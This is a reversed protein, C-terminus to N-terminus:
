EGEKNTNVFGNAEKDWKAGIVRAREMLQKKARVKSDYVHECEAFFGVLGNLDDANEAKAVMDDYKSCLETYKADAAAKENQTETYIDQLKALLYNDDGANLVPVAMRNPAGITNKTYLRDDGGFTLTRESGVLSMYCIVDMEGLITDGLKGLAPRINKVGTEENKEEIQHAVIVLNMGLAYVSNKFQKFIDKRQGYGQMTLSGDKRLKAGNSKLHQEIMDILKEMNDVILTNYNGRIAQLDAVVDSWGNELQDTDCRHMPNTRSIGGDFDLLVPNKASLALTTKGIGPQGYILIASTKKPEIQQPKKLM